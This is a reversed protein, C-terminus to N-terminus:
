EQITLPRCVLVRDNGSDSIFVRDGSVAIDSPSTIPIRLGPLTPEVVLLRDGTPGFVFIRASIRDIVWVRDTDDIAVGAPERFEQDELARKYNGYEDYVAIRRNGVDCVLHNGQRDIVIKSPSSLGGGAYGFEGVFRDFQQVLTFVAIRNNDRDSIWINGSRDVAAGGPSGFKLPDDPDSFHLEDTYQLRSDLRCIRRNGEDVVRISLPGDGAIFTPRYFLGAASGRGGYECEPILDSTFRIFRNNGQDCVILGGQADIMLGAPQRFYQGFIRGEIITDVVLAVPVPRDQIPLHSKPLCGCALLLLPLLVSLFTARSM